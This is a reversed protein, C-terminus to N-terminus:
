GWNKLLFYGRRYRKKGGVGPVFLGKLTFHGGKFIYPVWFGM